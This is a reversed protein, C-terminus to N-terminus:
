PMKAANEQAVELANEWVQFTIEAARSHVAVYIGFLGRV